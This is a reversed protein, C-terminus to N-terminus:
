SSAGNIEPGWTPKRTGFWKYPSSAMIVVFSSHGQFSIPHSALTLNIKSLIFPLLKKNLSFLSKFKHVSIGIM